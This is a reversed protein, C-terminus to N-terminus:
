LKGGNKFYGTIGTTRLTDLLVVAEATDSM